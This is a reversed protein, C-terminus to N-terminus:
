NKAKEVVFSSVAKISTVNGTKDDTTLELVRITVTRKRNVRFGLKIADLGAPNETFEPPLGKDQSTFVKAGDASLTIEEGEMLTTLMDIKKDIKIVEIKKGKVDVWMLLARFEEARAVGVASALFVVAALFPRRM